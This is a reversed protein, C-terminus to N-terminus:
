IHLTFETVICINVINDSELVLMQKWRLRFVLKDAESSYDVTVRKILRDKARTRKDDTSDSGSDRTRLNGSVHPILKDM